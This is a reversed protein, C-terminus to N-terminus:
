QQTGLFSAVFGTDVWGGAGPRQVSGDASLVRLGGQLNGGVIAVGADVSGLSRVPGGLAVVDVSTEGDVGRLVAVHTEDMWAIDVISGTAPLSLPTGLSVPALEADRVVGVVFLRPGSPTSLAVLLRAGDRALEISVVTGDTDIPLAHVVGDIGTAQLGGPDTPVSWVYGYPDITPALLGGRGDVLVPEGQSPVLSVGASWLVAATVRDRGLAVQLPNLRDARTGIGSIPSVGDDALTGFRGDVGGIADSVLYRVEPPTGEAAPSLTLGESTLGVFTVNNLSGLSQELQQQMRRQALASELRVQESLDVDVRPARYNARGTTGAPFASVLVPSALWPSPGALLETVIRDAVSRPTVPFWRLDPVLYRFSPDFFYLPYEGFAASFASASLVTGPAALAIRFEGGVLEFDYTLTQTSAGAVYRGGADVEATVNVTIALTDEDLQVPEVNAVNAILVRDTGRWDAAAATTLYERAVSYNNQPGRGASIFGQLIEVMSQGPQPSEPLAIQPIEDPDTDIPATQVPGSTPIGVCGALLLAGLAAAAGFAARRRTM